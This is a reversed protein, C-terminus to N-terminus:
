EDYVEQDRLDFDRLSRDRATVMEFAVLADRMAYKLANSTITAGTIADIGEIGASDQGWFKGLHSENFVMNYFSVTETHSLVIAITDNDTKPEIIRGNMDIGCLLRMNERGYGRISIAFIFGADNTARYIDSITRPFGPESRFVEIESDGFEIGEGMISIKQELARERAAEIIIPETISNVIALAGSVILCIFLLVVIPIIYDKKVSV